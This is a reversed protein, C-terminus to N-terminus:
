KKTRVEPIQGNPVNRRIGDAVGPVNRIGLNSIGRLRAFPVRATRQAEFGDFSVDAADHMWVPPRADAAMTSVVVDRVSLRRVHRVYLGYAPLTGFM